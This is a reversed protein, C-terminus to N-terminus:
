EFGGGQLLATNNLPFATKAIDPPCGFSGSWGPSNFKTTTNGEEGDSPTCFVTSDITVNGIGFYSINGYLRYGYIGDKVIQRALYHGPEGFVARVDIAKQIDDAENVSRARDFSQSNAFYYKDAKLQADGIPLLTANDSLTVELGHEGDHIGAKAGYAPENSHGLVISISKGQQHEGDNMSLTTEAHGFAPQLITSVSSPLIINIAAAIVGAVTAINIKGRLRSSDTTSMNSQEVRRLTMVAERGM